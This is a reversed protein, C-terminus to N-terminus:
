QRALLRQGFASVAFDILMRIEFPQQDLDDGHRREFMIFLSAGPVFGPPPAAALMIQEAFDVLIERQPEPVLVLKGEQLAEVANEVGVDSETDDDFFDLARVSLQRRRHGADHPFLSQRGTQSFFQETQAVVHDLM